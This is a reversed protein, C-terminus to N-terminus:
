LLVISQQALLVTAKTIAVWPLVLMKQLIQVHLTVSAALQLLVVSPTLAMVHLVKQGYAVVLPVITWPLKTMTVCAMVTAVLVM